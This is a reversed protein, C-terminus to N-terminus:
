GSRASATSASSCSRSPVARGVAVLSIHTWSPTPRRRSAPLTAASPDAPAFCKAFNSLLSLWRFVAM